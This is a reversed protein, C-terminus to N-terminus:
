GFLCILDRGNIHPIPWSIIQRSLRRYELDRIISYDSPARAPVTLVHFSGYRIWLWVFDLLRRETEKILSHIFLFNGNYLFWSLWFKPQGNGVTSPPIRLKQARDVHSGWVVALASLRVKAQSPLIWLENVRYFSLAWEIWAMSLPSWQHTSLWNTNSTRIRSIRRVCTRRRLIPKAWLGPLIIVIM